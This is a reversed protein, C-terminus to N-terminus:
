LHAVQRIYDAAQKYEDASALHELILPTDPHLTHLQAIYVHYDLKGTGPIAEDLHVTLTDRLIIDKAHCSKIYPGLKAFCERLFDANRFYREVSAIMNVPDFHVAFQPRNIAQILRLYSDADYPFIWPMTELTYFTRKPNVADIIERVTDVILAFTDETMNDEHPGDWKDGRSGAINVCSNAGVYDAVALKEQCLTIALKRALDDTSIPNSWAGVEAILINAQQSAKVYADLETSHAMSLSQPLVGATYHLQQHKRVWDDAHLADVPGGLRM